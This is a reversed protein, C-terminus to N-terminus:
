SGRWSRNGEQRDCGFESEADQVPETDRGPRLGPGCERGILSLQGLAQRLLPALAMPPDATLWRNMAVGTAATVAGAMVSPFLDSEADSGIRDAIALALAQQAAYQTRLMEGQLSPSQFALRVGATWNRDPAQVAAAYQDLVADAIAEILPEGPPRSRLALGIQRGREMSLSCIAEYKSAFYNSFTRTSVGAEAAIDEVLVNDLGREVALRMAAIGLAHRTAAKKRERLGQGGMRAAADDLQTEAPEGPAVAM